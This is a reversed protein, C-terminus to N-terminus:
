RRRWHFFRRRATVSLLRGDHHGTVAGNFASIEEDLRDRRGADADGVVFWVESMM